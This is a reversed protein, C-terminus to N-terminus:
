RRWGTGTGPVPPICRARNRRASTERAAALASREAPRDRLPGGLEALLEPLGHGTAERVANDLDVLRVTVRATRTERYQGTIGIIARREADTPRSVSVSGALEGGTRELSRRAAALLRQYVAEKYCYAGQRGATM